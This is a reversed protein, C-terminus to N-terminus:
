IRRDDKLAMAGHPRPSSMGEQTKHISRGTDNFGAEITLTIFGLGVDDM